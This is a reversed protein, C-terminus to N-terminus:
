LPPHVLPDGFLPAPQRLYYPAVEGIVGHRGVERCEAGKAVIHHTEPQARQPAAALLVIERPLPYCLQGIVEERLGLDKVWPWAYAKGDGGLTPATHRLLARVSRLPPRPTVQTGVAIWPDHRSPRVPVKEQSGVGPSFPQDDLMRPIQPSQIYDLLPWTCPPRPGGDVELDNRREAEATGGWAGATAATGLRTPVPKTLIDGTVPVTEVTVAASIVREPAAVIWSARCVLGSPASHQAGPATGALAIAGPSVLRLSTEVMSVSAARQAARSLSARYESCLTQASGPAGEVEPRKARS